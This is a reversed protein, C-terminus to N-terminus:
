FVRGILINAGLLINTSYNYQFLPMPLLPLKVRRWEGILFVAFLMAGFTLMTIGAPSNWPITSGGQSIPIM